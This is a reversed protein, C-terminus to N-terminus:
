WRRSASVGRTPPMSRSSHAPGAAKDQRSLWCERCPHGRTLGPPSAERDAQVKKEKQRPLLRSPVVSGDCYGRVRRDLMWPASRCVTNKFSHHCFCIPPSVCHVHFASGSASMQSNNRQGASGREHPRRDLSGARRRPPSLSVRPRSLYGPLLYVGFSM